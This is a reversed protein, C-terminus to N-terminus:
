GIANWASRPRLDDIDSTWFHGQSPQDHRRDIPTGSLHCWLLTGVAGHSAIALDGRDHQAVIMRVATVVRAQADVAREWGRYSEDPTAFFRDACREFEAPPLFGTSSRDNEGLAPDIKISVGRARALIEATEIAKREASAWIATVASLVAHAAFATARARGRDSLSWDTVAVDPAM